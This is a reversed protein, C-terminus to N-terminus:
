PITKFRIKLNYGDVHLFLRDDDVIRPRRNFRNERRHYDFGDFVRRRPCINSPRAGRRRDVSISIDRSALFPSLPKEAELAVDVDTTTALM